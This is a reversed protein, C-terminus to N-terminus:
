EYFFILVRANAGVCCCPQGKNGAAPARQASSLHVPCVSLISCMSQFLGARVGRRVRLFFISFRSLDGGAGARDRWQVPGAHRLLRGPRARRVRGVRM